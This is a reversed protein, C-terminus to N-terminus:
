SPSLDGFAEVQETYKMRIHRCYLTAAVLAATPLIYIYAHCFIVQIQEGIAALLLVVLVIIAVFVYTPVNQSAKDDPIVPLQLIVTFSAEIASYISISKTQQM